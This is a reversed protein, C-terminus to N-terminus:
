SELVHAGADNPGAVHSSEVGVHLDPDSAEPFLIVVEPAIGGQSLQDWRDDVRRSQHDLRRRFRATATVCRVAMWWVM